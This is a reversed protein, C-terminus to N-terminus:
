LKYKRINIGTVRRGWCCCTPPSQTTLTIGGRSGAVSGSHILLGLSHLSKEGEFYSRPGKFHILLKKLLSEGKRREGQGGPECEGHNTLCFIWLFLARVRFLDEKWELTLEVSPAELPTMKFNLFTFFNCLHWPSWVCWPAQSWGEWGAGCVHAGHSGMSLVGWAPEWSAPHALFRRVQSVLSHIM